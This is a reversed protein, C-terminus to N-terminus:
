IRARRATAGGSGSFGMVARRISLDLLIDESGGPVTIAKVDRWIREVREGRGGVGRTLGPGGLLQIAQSVVRELVIGSHAKLQATQGALLATATHTPLQTLQYILTEIWSQLAEVERAMHALKHRVVATVTLVNDISSEFPPFLNKRRADPHEPPITLRRVMHSWNRVLHRAPYRTHIKKRELSCQTLPFPPPPHQAFLAVYSVADELCMRACRLSQFSIFLREHNFNSMVCAFGGGDEGVRNTVPVVTEDFEVFATGACTSGCMQMPRVTVTDSDMPIVLLTFKRDATRTLTLFFDAYMGGTIWKKQGNVTYHTTDASLTATTTIGQVDSGAEPETVALSFRSKGSLADHIIRDIAAGKGHKLIAPICLTLGGILGNPIGIGGVRMMEDHIIFDHFGDWEDAKIEGIIPYSDRWESPIKAGAAMPMLIGAEACAKYLDDPLTGSKEWDSVNPILNTEVWERMARQLQHHSDRIYPSPLGCVWPPEAYPIQSGHGQKETEKGAGM